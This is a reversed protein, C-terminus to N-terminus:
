SNDQLIRICFNHFIDKQLKEFYIINLYLIIYHNFLMMKVYMNVLDM